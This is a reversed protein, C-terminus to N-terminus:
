GGRGSGKWRREEGGGGKGWRGVVAGRLAKGWKQYGEGWEWSAILKLTKGWSTKWAL